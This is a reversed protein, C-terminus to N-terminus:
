ATSCEREEARHLLDEAQQVTQESYQILIDLERVIVQREETPQSLATKGAISLETLLETLRIIQFDIHKLTLLLYLRLSVVVLPLHISPEIFAQFKRSHESISTLSTIADDSTAPWVRQGSTFLGRLAKLEDQANLIAWEYRRLRPAFLELLQRESCVRTADLDDFVPYTHESM